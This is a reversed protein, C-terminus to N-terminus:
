GTTGVGFLKMSREEQLMPFATARAEPLRWPYNSNRARPFRDVLDLEDLGPVLLLVLKSTRDELESSKCGRMQQPCDFVLRCLFTVERPHTLQRDRRM